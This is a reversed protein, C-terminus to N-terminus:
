KLLQFLEPDISATKQLLNTSLHQRRDKLVNLVLIRVTTIDLLPEKVLKMKKAHVAKAFMDLITTSSVSSYINRDDSLFYFMPYMQHPASILSLNWQQYTTVQQELIPTDLFCHFFQIPSHPITRQLFDKLSHFMEQLYPPEQTGFLAVRYSCANSALSSLLYMAYNFIGTILVSVQPSTNHNTNGIAEEISKLPDTVRFNTNYGTPYLLALATDMMHQSLLGMQQEIGCLQTIEITRNVLANETISLIRQIPLLTLQDLAPSLQAWYKLLSGFYMSHDAIMDQCCMLCDGQIRWDRIRTLPPNLIAFVRLLITPPVDKICQFFHTAIQSTLAGNNAQQSEETINYLIDILSIEEKVNSSSALHSIIGSFREINVCLTTMIDRLVKGKGGSQQTLYGLLDDPRNEEEETTYSM